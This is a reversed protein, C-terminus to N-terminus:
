NQEATPWSCLLLFFPIFYYGEWCKQRHNNTIDFEVQIWQVERLEEECSTLSGKRILSSLFLYLFLLINNHNLKWKKTKQKQTHCYTNTLESCCNQLLFISSVSEHLFSPFVKCTCTLLWCLHVSIIIELEFGSVLSYAWQVKLTYHPVTWPPDVSYLHLVLM